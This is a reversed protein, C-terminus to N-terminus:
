ATITLGLQDKMWRSVGAEADNLAADLTRYSHRGKWVVGSEAVVRIFARTQVGSGIEITAFAKVSKWLQPYKALVGSNTNKVM